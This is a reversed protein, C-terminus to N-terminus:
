NTNSFFINEPMNVLFNPEQLTEIFGIFDGRYIATNPKFFVDGDTFKCLPLSNLRRMGSFEVLNKKLLLLYLDSAFLRNGNDIVV